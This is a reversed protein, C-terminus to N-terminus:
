TDPSRAPARTPELQAMRDELRDTRTILERVRKLLLPLRGLSALQHKADQLPRAPFGWVAQGSAVSKTVVSAAGVQAAEGITVHDVVGSQGGLMVRNGVTVSGSLGVQGTIIVDEGICDNHAIQVLNDVKTGRRIITAGLTARDVCVNCGLEVDDEIVVHGLQPIKLHHDSAWVYGFGDGGVVTGGHIMVRDGLKVGYMLVVNPGLYCDQGIVVDHGVHVGSEIVTRLGIRARARIVACESVTVGEPVVADADVVASPHVRGLAEARAQFLYMVKLFALRPHDVRLLNKGVVTPFQKSIIVASARTARVQPEYKDHDAFTISGPEASELAGLGNIREEGNGFLEGGIRENIVRLPYDMSM